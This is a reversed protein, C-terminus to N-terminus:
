RVYIKNRKLHKYILIIFLLGIALPVLCLPNFEYLKVSTSINSFTTVIDLNFFNTYRLIVFTYFAALTGQLLKGIFYAKISIDSKSIISFVQLLVSFGGFGLLFACIIVNISILQNPILAVSQVGNTLEVLGTLFAECFNKSINLLDSIPYLVFSTLELIKSEKLISIVVSFLVVFGGIMVVTSIASSISNGLIEGLNSFSCNKKSNNIQKKNYSSNTSSNYKWFRFIIGVSICALIHTIFLLIGTRTDGFLSIGVTGIIFLPGSNNTFALMREAEEKTCLNDNRFNTVIKAGTPYGSIIGMIFAFAGIGPVNFLPRMFRNLVNGLYYVINTYSLLETAIFFPLLSPVVANAFLKLGNKAAILNKNSFIVLFLTFLVFILPIICNKLRVSFIHVSKM